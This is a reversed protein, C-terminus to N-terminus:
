AELPKKSFKMKTNSKKNYKKETAATKNKKLKKKISSKMYM